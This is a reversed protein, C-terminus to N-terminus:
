MLPLNLLIKIYTFTFIFNAFAFYPFSAQTMKLPDEIQIQKELLFFGM